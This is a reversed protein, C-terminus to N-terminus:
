IALPADLSELQALPEEQSSSSAGFSRMDSILTSCLVKWNNRVM